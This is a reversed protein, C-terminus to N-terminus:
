AVLETTLDDLLKDLEDGFLAAAKGLGGLQAFPALGFDDLKIGLSAAVHDRIMQLWALQEDSFERGAVRQHQLWEDFRAKM